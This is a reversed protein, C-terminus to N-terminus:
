GSTGRKGQSETGVTKSDSGCLGAQGCGPEREMPEGKPAAEARHGSGGQERCAQKLQEMGGVGMLEMLRENDIVGYRAKPHQIEVYGCDPWQELDTVVGARVM